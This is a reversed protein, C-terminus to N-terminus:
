IRGLIIMWGLLGIIFVGLSIFIAIILSIVINRKKM